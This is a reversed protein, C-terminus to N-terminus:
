SEMIGGMVQLSAADWRISLGHKERVHEIFEGLTVTGADKPRWEAPKALVAEVAERQKIRATKAPEAAIATSLMVGCFLVIGYLVIGCVGDRTRRMSCEM